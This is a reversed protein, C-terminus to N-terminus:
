TYVYIKAEKRHWTKAGFISADLTITDRTKKAVVIIPPM